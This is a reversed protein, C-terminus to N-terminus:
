ACRPSHNEGCRSCRPASQEGASTKSEVGMNFAATNLITKANPDGMEKAREHLWTIAWKVGAQRGQTYEPSRSM